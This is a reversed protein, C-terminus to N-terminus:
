EKTIFLPKQGVRDRILIVSDESADYISSAFMGSILKIEREFDGNDYANHIAECDSNTVWECDSYRDKLYSYNYIEGNTMSFTSKKKHLFPQSGNKIERISLRAFGFTSKKYSCIINEDPGRNKIFKMMRSVILHRYNEDIENSVIGALGCM